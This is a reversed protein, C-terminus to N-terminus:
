HESDLELLQLKMAGGLNDLAELLQQVSTTTVRRFSIPTTSMNQAAPGSKHTSYQAHQPHPLDPASPDRRKGIRARGTLDLSLADLRDATHVAERGLDPFARPTIM